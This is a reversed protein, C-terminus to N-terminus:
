DDDEVEQKFNCFKGKGEKSAFSMFAAWHFRSVFLSCLGSLVAGICLALGFAQLETLAIAFLLVGFGAVAIHLDFLRWFSKKYGEKVSSAMTKGLAYEKRVAEYTLMDSVCLLTGGLLLALLTEIGLHLQPVGWVILIMAFFWILFTYLHALGLGHYRVFFFALMGLILAGVSVYILILALDTMAAHTRVVDEVRFALDTKAGNLATDIALAVVKSTEDTYNGSIGLTNLDITQNVSLSILADDGVYFYLTVATDAATATWDAIVKRGFDTLDIVVFYTSGNFTAHAGKVYDNVTEGKAVTLKTASAADSGYGMNFAGTSAFQTLIVSQAGTYAPIGIQVTYDDAIQVKVDELHLGEYRARFLSVASAFDEKFEASIETGDKSGCATEKELFIPGNADPYRMYKGEYDSVAKEADEKEGAAANAAAEKLANLDDEYEQASIVGEPYYVATYGGGLYHEGDALEGGLKADKTLMSVVSNFTYMQDTGYSFSVTCMFCVGLILITILILAVASKVKSM